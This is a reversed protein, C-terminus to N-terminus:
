LDPDRKIRMMDEDVHDHAHVASSGAPLRDAPVPDRCDWTRPDRDNRPPASRTCSSTVVAGSKLAVAVGPPRSRLGVRVTSTPTM